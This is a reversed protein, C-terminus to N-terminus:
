IWLNDRSEFFFSKQKRHGFIIKSICDNARQKKALGCKNRRKRSNMARRPNVNGSTQV